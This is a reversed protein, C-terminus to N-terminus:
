YAKPKTVEEIMLAIQKTADIREKYADDKMVKGNDDLKNGKIANANCVIQKTNKIVTNYHGGLEEMLVSEAISKFNYFLDKNAQTPVMMNRNLKMLTGEWVYQVDIFADVREATTTADYFEKIEEELMKLENELNIEFNNRQQNFLYVAKIM